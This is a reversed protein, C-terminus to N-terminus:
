FRAVPVVPRACGSLRNGIPARRATDRGARRTLCFCMKSLAEVVTLILRGEGLNQAPIYTKSTIYGQGVYAADLERMVAQIDAGEMCSPIYPSIVAAVEDHPLIHVGEVSIEHIHFCPGGRAQAPGPDPVGGRVTLGGLENTRQELAQQRRDELLPDIQDIGQASAASLSLALVVLCTTDIRMGRTM